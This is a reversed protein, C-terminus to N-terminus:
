KVLGPIESLAKGALQSSLNEINKFIKKSIKEIKKRSLKDPPPPHKKKLQKAYLKKYGRMVSTLKKEVLKSYDTHSYFEPKQNPGSEDGKLHRPLGLAAAVERGQPLIVMNIMDNLNYEARCLGQRILSPLRSDAKGAKNIAAKLAGNPVMHHANHWYPKIFHDFNGKKGVDWSGTGDKYKTPRKRKLGYKKPFASTRAGTRFKGGGCFHEYKPFDYMSSHIKAKEKAQWQHSCKHGESRSQHRTLCGKEAAGGKPQHLKKLEADSIHSDGM